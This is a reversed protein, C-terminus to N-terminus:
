SVEIKPLAIILKLEKIVSIITTAPMVKNSM